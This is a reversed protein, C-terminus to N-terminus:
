GVDFEDVLEYRPRNRPGQGLHSAILSVTTTTWEPGEYADLLRVWSSV